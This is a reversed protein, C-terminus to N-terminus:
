MDSIFPFPSNGRSLYKVALEVTSQLHSSGPFELSSFFELGFDSVTTHRTHIHIDPIKNYVIYIYIYISGQVRTDTM